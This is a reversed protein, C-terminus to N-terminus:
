IYYIDNLVLNFKNVCYELEDDKYKKLKSIINSIEKIDYELVNLNYHYDSNSIHEYEYYDIERPYHKDRNIHIKLRDFRINRDKLKDVRKNLYKILSKRIVSNNFYIDNNYVSVYATKSKTYGSMYFISGNTSFVKVNINEKVICHLTKNGNLEPIKLNKNLVYLNSIDDHYWFGDIEGGNKIYGELWLIYDKHTAPTLGLISLKEDSLHVGYKCFKHYTEIYLLKNNLEDNEEGIEVDEKEDIEVDEKLYEEKKTDNKNQIFINKLMKFM